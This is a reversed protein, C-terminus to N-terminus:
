GGEASAIVAVEVIWGAADGSRAAWGGTGSIAPVREVALEWLHAGFLGDRRPVLDDFCGEFVFDRLLPDELDHFAICRSHIFESGHHLLALVPM